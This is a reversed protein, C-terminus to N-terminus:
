ASRPPHGCIYICIYNCCPDELEKGNSDVLLFDMRLYGYAAFRQAQAPDSDVGLLRQLLGNTEDNGAPLTVALQPFVASSFAASVMAKVM